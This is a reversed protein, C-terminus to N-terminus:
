LEKSVIFELVADGLFELRENSEVDKGHENIWSKHTLALRLYKKNKFLEELNM